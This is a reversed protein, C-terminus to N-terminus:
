RETPTPRFSVRGESRGTIDYARDGLVKRVRQSARENPPAGCQQHGQSVRRVPRHESSGARARPRAIASRRVRSGRWRRVVQVQGAFRPIVRSRWEPLSWREFWACIATKHGPRMGVLSASNRVRRYSIETSEAMLRPLFNACSPLRRVRQHGLPTRACRRGGVPSTGDLTMRNLTSLNPRPV